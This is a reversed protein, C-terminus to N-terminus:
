KFGKRLRGKKEMQIRCLLMEAGFLSLLFGISFFFSVSSEQNKNKIEGRGEGRKLFTPGSKMKSSWIIGVQGGTFLDLGLELGLALTCFDKKEEIYRTLYM